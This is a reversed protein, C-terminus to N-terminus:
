PPTGPQVPAQPKADVAKLYFPRCPASAPDSAAGLRAVVAIDPAARGDLVAPPSAGEPWAALIAEAGPGVVVVPVAAARQAV